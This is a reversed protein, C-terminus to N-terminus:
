LHQKLTESGSKITIEHSTYISVHAELVPTTNNFFHSTEAYLRSAALPSSAKLEKIICDSKVQIVQKNQNLTLM